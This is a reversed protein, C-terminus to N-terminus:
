GKNPAISIHQMDIITLYNFPFLRVCAQWVSVNDM